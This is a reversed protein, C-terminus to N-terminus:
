LGVSLFFVPIPSKPGLFNKKSLGIGQRPEPYPGQSLTLAQLAAQCPYARPPTHPSGSARKPKPLRLAPDTTLTLVPCLNPNTM